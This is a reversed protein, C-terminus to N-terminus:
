RKQHHKRDIYRKKPRFLRDEDDRLENEYVIRNAIGGLGPFMTASNIGLRALKGRLDAVSQPPIIIKSLKLYGNETEFSPFCIPKEKTKHHAVFVGSQAQIYPFVHEPFYICPKDIGFPSACNCLEEEDYIYVWIIRPLYRTSVDKVAFWLAVLPNKTWDLLRTPLGNHQALALLQWNNEPKINLYPIAERKFQRLIEEENKLIDSGFKKRGVSPILEWDKTQGRFIVKGDLSFWTSLKIYKTITDVSYVRPKGEENEILYKEMCAM